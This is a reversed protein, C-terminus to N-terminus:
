LCSASMGNGIPQSSSLRDNWERPLNLATGPCIDIYDGQYNFHEYLRYSVSTRNRVSSVCDNFNKAQCNEGGTLRSWQATRGDISAFDNGYNYDQWICVKEAPCQDASRARAEASNAM